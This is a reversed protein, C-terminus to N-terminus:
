RVHELYGALVRLVNLTSATAMSVIFALTLGGSLDVAVPATTADYQAAGQAGSANRPWRDQAAFVSGGAGVAPLYIRGSLAWPQGAGFVSTQSTVINNSYILTGNARLKALFNGSPNQGSATDANGELTYRFFSSTSLSTAPIVVSVVTQEGSTNTYSASPMPTNLLPVANFRSDSAAAKAALDAALNTVDAEAHSHIAAAKGALDAALNTVDAEAHSHAAAAKGALDTALNTVDAEAHTHGVASKGALASTYNALSPVTM